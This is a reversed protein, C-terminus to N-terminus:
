IIHLVAGLGDAVLGMSESTWGAIVEVFFMAGNLALLAILARRGVSENASM